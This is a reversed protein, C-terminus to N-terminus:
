VGAPGIPCRTGLVLEEAALSLTSEPRAAGLCASSCSCGRERASRALITCRPLLAASVSARAICFLVLRTAGLVSILM